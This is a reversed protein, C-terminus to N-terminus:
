EHEIARLKKVQGRQKKNELRRLQSGLTPKTKTRKKVPKLADFLLAKLRERAIMRNRLQSRESEVQILIEEEGVLRCSLRKLILNKQEDSISESHKVNWRLAIKSSTKNVHQGGPGGSRSATILLENGKIILRPNVILDQEM